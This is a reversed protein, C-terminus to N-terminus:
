VIRDSLAARLEPSARLAGLVHVSSITQRALEASVDDAIVVLGLVRIELKTGAARASELDARRIQRMGLELQNRMVSHRVSDNQRDLQNRIATRVFDTRNSYFGEQVLLDIHGLDVHGLNISLKESDAHKQSQVLSTVMEKRVGELQLMSPM